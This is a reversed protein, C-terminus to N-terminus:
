SGLNQRKIISKNAKHRGFRQIPFHSRGFLVLELLQWPHKDNLELAESETSSTTALDRLVNVEGITEGNRSTQQSRISGSPLSLPAVFEKAHHLVM